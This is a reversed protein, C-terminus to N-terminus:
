MSAIERVEINGDEANLIPCGKSLEVAQNMDTANVMLYGGVIEAGEAFPGDTVLQGGKSVQMGEAKLPLGDILQGKEALSQMWKGWEAMEAQVEEPSMEAMRADGGRFLYLFKKM